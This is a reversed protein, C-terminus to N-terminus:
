IQCSQEEAPRGGITVFDGHNARVAPTTLSPIQRHTLGVVKVRSCRPICLQVGENKKSYRLQGDSNEMACRRIGLAM